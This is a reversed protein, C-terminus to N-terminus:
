CAHMYAEIGGGLYKPKTNKGLIYDPMASGKGEKRSLPFSLTQTVKDDVVQTLEIHISDNHIVHIM